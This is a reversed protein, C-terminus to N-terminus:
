CGRSLWIWHQKTYLVSIIRHFSGPTSNGCHKRRQLRQRLHRLEGNHCLPQLAHVCVSNFHSTTQYQFFVNSHVKFYTRLPFQNQFRGKLFFIAPPPLSWPWNRHCHRCGTGFAFNVLIVVVAFYSLNISYLSGLGAVFDVVSAWWLILKYDCIFAVLELYIASFPFSWWVGVDLMHVIM